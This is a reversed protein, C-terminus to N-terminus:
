FMGLCDATELPCKENTPSHWWQGLSQSVAANEMSSHNITIGAPQEFTTFPLSKILMNTNSMMYGDRAIVLRGHLNNSMRWCSFNVATSKLTIMLHVQKITFPQCHNFNDGDVTIIHSLQQLQWASFCALWGSYVLCECDVILYSTMTQGLRLWNPIDM